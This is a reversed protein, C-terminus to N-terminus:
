YTCTYLLHIYRTKGIGSCGEVTVIEGKTLEVNFGDEGFLLVSGSPVNFNEIRFFPNNHHSIEKTGQVVQYNAKYTSLDLEGSLSSSSLSTKLGGTITPSSPNEEDAAVSEISTRASSMSSKSREFVPVASYMEISPHNTLSTDRPRFWSTLFLCSKQMLERVDLGKLDSRKKIKNTTLGDCEGFINKITLYTATCTSLFASTFILWLIAMQYEAAIYPSSGGLLQGTMMGPINVLGVVAMSNLNPMMASRIVARLMPLIAEYKNGGFALRIEPEYPREMVDTLLRDCALAPGSMAGGIIMGATPILVHPNFWPIPKFVVIAGYMSVLGGMLVSLLSDLYQGSYTRSQRTTVEQAAIMSMIFLYAVVLFQSEISFIFGLLICGAFLLQIITRMISIFIKYGIDLKLYISLVIMAIPACLALFLQILTLETAGPKDTGSDIPNVDMPESLTENKLLLLRLKPINSIIVVQAITYFDM